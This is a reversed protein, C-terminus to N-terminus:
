KKNLLLYTNFELILEYKENENLNTQIYDLLTFSIIKGNRIDNIILQKPTTIGYISDCQSDGTRVSISRKRNGIPTTPPNTKFLEFIKNM